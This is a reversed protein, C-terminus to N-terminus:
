TTKPVNDKALRRLKDLCCILVDRFCKCSVLSIVMLDVLLNLMAVMSFQAFYWISHLPAVLLAVVSCGVLLWCTVVGLSSLFTLFSSFIYIHTSFHFSIQTLKGLTKFTVEPDARYLVMLARIDSYPKSLIMSTKSFVCALVNKFPSFPLLQFAVNSQTIFGLLKM